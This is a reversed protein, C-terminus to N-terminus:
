QSSSTKMMKLSDTLEPYFEMCLYENKMNKTMWLKRLIGKRIKQQHLCSSLSFTIILIIINKM